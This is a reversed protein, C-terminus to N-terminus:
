KKSSEPFIKKRWINEIQLQNFGYFHFGYIQARHETVWVHGVRQLGMCLWGSPEETWSSKGPWFVPTPQWTGLLDKGTLSWIWTEWMAPPNKVLQIVLSVWSYHLPYGIREVHSRGLGPISASDGANCTSEKDASSGFLFGLIWPYLLSIMNLNVPRLKSCFSTFETALWFGKLCIVNYPKSLMGLPLFILSDLCSYM